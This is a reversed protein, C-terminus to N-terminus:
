FSHCDDRLEVRSIQKTPVALPKVSVSCLFMLLCYQWSSAFCQCWWGCNPQFFCPLFNELYQRLEIITLGSSNQEEGPVLQPHAAQHLFRQPDPWKAHRGHNGRRPWSPWLAPLWSESSSPPHLTFVPQPFSLSLFVILKWNLNLTQKTISRSIIQQQM